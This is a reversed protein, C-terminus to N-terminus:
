AASKDGTEVAHTVHAPKAAAVLADLKAADISEKKAPKVRVAVAYSADGPPKSGPTKSWSVGGSDTVAIEGSTLLKLQMSLGAATGRRRYIQSAVAVLARRREIPWTEDLVLGVWGGLWDLFDEPTLAPDLYAELNDITSLVPAYADDFAATLARALEDEQYLGPLSGILQRPSGLDTVVGRV